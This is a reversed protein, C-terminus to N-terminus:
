INDKSGPERGINGRTMEEMDQMVQFNRWFGPRVDHNEDEEDVLGPALPQRSRLMNHLVICAKVITSVTEKKQRFINM